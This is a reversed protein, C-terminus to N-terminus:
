RACCTTRTGPRLWWRSAPSRSCACWGRACFCRTTPLSWACPRRRENARSGRRSRPAGGPPRTSRSGARSCRSGTPWAECAPETGRTPEGWGTTRSRWSDRSWERAGRARDGASADAYKAVNTLAEAVVFYAALEVPEPLREAPLEALEVPFPARVALTELATNLGRDSLVAPHIGRALERLEELAADLEVGASDLLQEAAAPDDRLKTRALRMNLAMSVLRQQAGDHLDRELRRREEVGIELMRERSERLEGVKARLEADLGENALALAAAAGSRASM